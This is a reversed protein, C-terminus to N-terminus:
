QEMKTITKMSQITAEVIGFEYRCFQPINTKHDKKIEM